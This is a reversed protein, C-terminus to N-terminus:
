KTKGVADKRIRSLSEPTIGLYSAIYHHPVENMLGPYIKLLNNYRELASSHQLSYIREMSLVYNYEAMLRGLKQIAPSKEYLRQLEEHDLMLLEADDLFHINEFSPKRSLFSTFSCVFLNRKETNFYSTIEKGDIVYFVRAIGKNLFGVQNCLQNEKIFFDGKRFSVPRLQNEFLQWDEAPLTGFQQLNERMKDFDGMIVPKIDDRIYKNVPERM